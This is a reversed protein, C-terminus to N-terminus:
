NLFIDVKTTQILFVKLIKFTEFIHKLSRLLTLFFVGKFNNEISIM